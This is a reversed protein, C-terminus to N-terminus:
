HLYMNIPKSRNTIVPIVFNSQAVQLKAAAVHPSSSYKCNPLCCTLPSPEHNGSPLLQFSPRWNEESVFRLRETVTEAAPSANHMESFVLGIKLLLTHM